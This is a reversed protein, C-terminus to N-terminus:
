EESSTRKDESFSVMVKELPTIKNEQTNKDYPSM